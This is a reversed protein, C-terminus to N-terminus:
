QVTRRRGTAWTVVLALLMWSWTMRGGPVACACQSNLAGPTQALDTADENSLDESRLRLIKEAINGAPDRVEVTLMYASETAAAPISQVTLWDTWNGQDVRWRMHLLEVPAVRDEAHVLVRGKDAATLWVQPADPDTWVSIARSDLTQSAYNGARMARVHVTHHGVLALKSDQVYLLGDPDPETWQHWPGFDVKWAYRVDAPLPALVGTLRVSGTARATGDEHRYWTQADPATQIALSPPLAVPNPDTDSFSLYLNLFEGTSNVQETQLAEFVIYVPAGGLADSLLPSIDFNFSIDQNLVSGLALNILSPLVDGFDVNPLLENYLQTFNELSPGNAVVISLEHTAPNPTVNLGAVVDASVEFLRAWRAYM